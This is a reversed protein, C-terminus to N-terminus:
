PAPTERRAYYGKRVHVRLHQGDKEATLRIARYNGNPEFGAPKYALLYRSRILERLKDLSKGLTLVDGPFMAEGGSREALMELVKDADTKPGADDRTSLAYITVGTSEADEIAKKLTRHSSNDEGDSLVVLVKAVREHEPYAALKWCAFSVADFLATGGGNKLQEIGNGLEESKATFDQTVNTESNFGAVFGLDSTGNLVKELFKAAAHKEFSFRTQVSGSTDILLALRLPLKSQPIFQAIKEPPKNDDQLRIESLQLDNVMHGHNSVAFFLATEDVTKHITWASGSRVSATLAASLEGNDPAVTGEPIPCTECAAKETANDVNNLEAKLRDSNPFTQLPADSVTPGGAPAASATLVNAQKRRALTELNQRAIPALANTPDEALFLTLEREVVDSNNLAVAAAAALYHVNAMGRHELAHVRRATILTQEYERNGNEAFALASLTKANQPTLAAAKELNSEATPYDKESLALLGLNVFSGPFHDDLKTAAQFESKARPDNQDLYALGLANHAAVFKPYEHIAKELCKAAEQSKQAKLFSTARNFQQVANNPAEVDLASIVGSQILEKNKVREAELAKAKKNQQDLYLQAFDLQAFGSDPGANM